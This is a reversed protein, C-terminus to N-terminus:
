ASILESKLSNSAESEVAPCSKRELRPEATLDEPMDISGGPAAGRGTAEVGKGAALDLAGTAEEADEAEAVLLALGVLALAKKPM